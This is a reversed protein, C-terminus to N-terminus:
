GVIDDIRVPTTTVSENDNQPREILYVSGEQYAFILNVADQPTVALTVTSYYPNGNDDQPSGLLATDLAVIEVNELLMRAITESQEYAKEETNADNEGEDEAPASIAVIIDVRNGVKLLNSVGTVNGVSVSVARMGDELLLALGGAVDEAKLLHNSMLTEQASIEVLTRCGIASELDLVANPAVASEPYEVTEVMDATIEAYAPITQKAVVVAKKTEEEPKEATDSSKPLLVIAMMIMVIVALLLALIRTRKM